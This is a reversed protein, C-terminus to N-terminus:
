APLETLCGDADGDGTDDGDADAAGCGATMAEADARRLGDGRVGSRYVEGTGRRWFVGRDGDDDSVVAADAASTEASWLLAM